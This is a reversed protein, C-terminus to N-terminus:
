PGKKRVYSDLVRRSLSGKALDFMMSTSTGHTKWFDRGHATSMLDSVKTAGKLGPPLRAVHEKILPADYGLRAWTYYGNFDSGKAADAYIRKVGLRAAHEVQRAFIRTGLGTGTQKIEIMENKIVVDGLTTKTISRLAHVGPGRFSVEVTWHFGPRISVKVNDPAGVISAIERDTLDRGFLEKLIRGTRKPAQRKVTAQSPGLAASPGRSAKAGAAASRAAARGSKM